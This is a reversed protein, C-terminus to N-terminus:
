KLAEDVAPDARLHVLVAALDLKGFVGFVSDLAEAWFALGEDPWGGRPAGLMEWVASSRSGGATKRSHLLFSSRWGCFGSRTADGIGCGFLEPRVRSYTNRFRPSTFMIM